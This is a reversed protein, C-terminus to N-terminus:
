YLSPVRDRRRCARRVGIEYDWHVFTLQQWWQRMSLRQVAVDCDATFRPPSPAPDHM